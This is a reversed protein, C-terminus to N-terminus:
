HALRHRPMNQIRIVQGCTECCASETRKVHDQLHSRAFFRADCADGKQCEKNCAYPRHNLHSRVHDLARELRKFSTAQSGCPRERDGFLCRWQSRETQELFVAYVSKGEPGLGMTLPDDAGTNNPEMTHNALFPAHLINDLVARRQWDGETRFSVSIIDEDARKRTATARPQSQLRETTPGPGAGFTNTSSAGPIRPSTEPASPPSSGATSSTKTATTPRSIQGVSQGRDLRLSGGTMSAPPMTSGYLFTTSEKIPSMPQGTISARHPNPSELVNISRAPSFPSEPPLTAAVTSTSGPISMTSVSDSLPRGYLDAPARELASAAFPMPRRLNALYATNFAPSKTQRPRISRNSGRRELLTGPGGGLIAMGSGAVLRPSGPFRSSISYPHSRPRVSFMPISPLGSPLIQNEKAGVNLRDQMFDNLQATEAFEEIAYGSPSVAPYLHSLARQQNLAEQASQQERELLRQAELSSQPYTPLQNPEAVQNSLTLAPQMQAQTMPQTRELRSVNGWISETWVQDESTELQMNSKPPSLEPHKVTLPMASEPYLTSLRLVDSQSISAHGGMNSAPMVSDYFPVLPMTHNSPLKIYQYSGGETDSPTPYATDHSSFGQSLTFDGWLSRSTNDSHSGPSSSPAWLPDVNSSAPHSAGLFSGANHFGPEYLSAPFTIQPSTAGTDGISSPSWSFTPSNM